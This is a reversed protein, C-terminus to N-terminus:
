ASLEEFVRRYSEYRDPHILGSEVANKIACRDEHTHTCDPFKCRAVHEVFETFHEELEFRGVTSLDFSRIGPTDVIFGGCDLRFLTATSTTHRGKGTDAAVAGVRLGLGPQVANMLASKGVGSQGVVASTGASLIDRLSEIGVGSLACTALTGVGLRVYRDLITAAEPDLDMKNMCVIPEVNGASAAVLYRDILHPKPHPQGASSVIIVRDVNAVITHIRKRVKRRLQGTRPEVSEIVGELCGGGEDTDGRFGVRDGVALPQRERTFRTRLLRRVTCRWVREGDDVDCFRGRWAVVIGTRLDAHSDGGVMITRHRSLAGKPRVREQSTAEIEGDQAENAQRTWDKVRARRSRNRRFPVRVKRGRNRGSNSNPSPTM